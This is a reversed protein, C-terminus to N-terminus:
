RYGTRWGPISDDKKRFHTMSEAEFDAEEDTVFDEEDVKPFNDEFGKALLSASDFQDDLTAQSVGTFKLMEEKAGEYGEAETNFRCAAARMRKQLVRGRTAKDKISPVEIINIFLNRERMENYVMASVAKWIVGDEVFFFRPNHAEQISFMEEIWGAKSGDALVEQSAWRGVRFDIFHLLNRMCKGGVTFSTRNAMDAKSVAFDAAACVVKDAERDMESMPLFDQRRLYAEANDQPENLFEQSYGGSDGDEIFEQRRARLRKETWAAPWLIESFDDFSRHARFFLHKWTKNKILRALLSDEHLITGHVRIRGSRSLAQKAARFFWRRFKARREKNEVQEDDEMDDGVILDPRKGNWMKGRIKQEAGRALIRWRHGDDMRVILDTQSDREVEEIGFETRLEENERVEEIINSLQEAANDETSGILIAYSSRRFLMEGLLYDFTFATSKAHDRPAVLVVASADSTYLEWGKRHFPPTEVPNDYRPSLFVGAFGEMTDADLLRAEHMMGM